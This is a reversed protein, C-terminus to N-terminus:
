FYHCKLLEKLIGTSTDIKLKNRIEEIEDEEDELEELEEIKDYLKISDKYTKWGEIRIVEWGMNEIKKQRKKDKVKDQHFKKGDCEIVIKKVPDAFDVFYKGVPYQPYFPLGIQRIDQWVNKEIPTLIEMWGKISYPDIMCTRCYVNDPRNSIKKEVKLYQKKIENLGKFYDNM